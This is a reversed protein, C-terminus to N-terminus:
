KIRMDNYLTFTNLDVHFRPSNPHLKLFKAVTDSTGGDKVIDGNGFSFALLCDSDSAVKTNRNLFGDTVEVTAGSDIANKIFLFSNIGTKKYFSDHYFNATRGPNKWFSFNKNDVFREMNVDWACPFHLILSNCVKKLYLDIAVFDSWAAGGSVLVDANTSSVVSTAIDVMQNYTSLGLKSGDEKRGATGIIGLKM